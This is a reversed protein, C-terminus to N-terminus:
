PKNPKNQNLNDCTVIKWNAEKCIKHFEYKKQLGEDLSNYTFTYTETQNNAKSFCITHKYKDNKCSVLLILILISWKLLKM